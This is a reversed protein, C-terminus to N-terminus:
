KELYNLPHNKVCANYYENRGDTNLDVRVKRTVYDYVGEEIDKKLCRTIEKPPPCRGKKKDSKSCYPTETSKTCETETGIVKTGVKEYFRREVDQYNPEIVRAAEIECEKQIQIYTCGTM